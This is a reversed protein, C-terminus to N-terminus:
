PLQLSQEVLRVVGVREHPLLEALPEPEALRSNLYPNLM